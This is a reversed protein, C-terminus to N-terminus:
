VIIPGYFTYCGVTMFNYRSKIRFLFCFCFFFPFLILHFVCHDCRSFALYKTMKVCIENVHVLIHTWKVITYKSGPFFTVLGKKIQNKRGEYFKFQFVELFTLLILCAVYLLTSFFIWSIKQRNKCRKDLNQPELRHHTNFLKEFTRYTTTVSTSSTNSFKKM